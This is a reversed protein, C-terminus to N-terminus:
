FKEKFTSKTMSISSSQFNDDKEALNRDIDLPINNKDFCTSWDKEKCENEIQSINHINYQNNYPQNFLLSNYESTNQGM